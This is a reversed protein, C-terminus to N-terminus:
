LGPSSELRNNLVMAALVFAMDARAQPPLPAADSDAHISALAAPAPHDCAEMWARMGQRLFLILGTGRGSGGLVHARLQEYRAALDGNASSLSHPDGTM